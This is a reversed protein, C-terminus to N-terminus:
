QQKPTTKSKSKKFLEKMKNYNRVYIVGVGTKIIEGEIPNEYQNQRFGKLKYRGDDTLKYDISINGAVDSANNQKSKEGELEVNGGVRITVKDDFLQKSVGVQLQTRGEEQGTSYDEFSNVGLDLDIFKVYKESLSSLQQTLVKSASSRSASSLGGGGSSELPNDSIFRRLTLLAFVQKNLQTEDGRLEELKTNVSGNIAGKDKPALQIDFAIEPTSLFGSMKLYVYFTLLSRYKNRELDNVSGLDNEILDLPSTKITYIAKIDVYADLIDGSWSVSSGSQIKFDRKVIDSISLHYGGDSINYKGTLATKGVKDLAFNLKGGGVIFLSDGSQQDVLMKLMVTKDITISADLDIGKMEIIDKLTDNTRTMIGKDYRLSDVFEVIGKNELKGVTKEPKVYTIVSGNNVKAKVKLYPSKTTGKIAIDCDLFVTGFYLPNDQVTTNLALFNDTRLRLDLDINKIDKIKASGSVVAKNNLSDLITFDPFEITNANIKIKSDPIRIYSDIFLPNLASEVFRLDGDFNPLSIPGTIKLKGNVNGTMRKVQDFTFPEVTAMNLNRIDLLMNLAQNRDAVNYSGKLAIDNGNGNVNIDLAYLKPSQKNNAKLKITGIPVSQFVFDSIMLDSSFANVNNQKELLVVGNVEGKVLGKKNEFLQSITSLNFNKFNLELPSPAIKNRSKISISQQANSLIFNNALLGQKTLQLYNTPEVNWKQANLIFDQNIKLEFIENVKKFVGGIALIKVSDDKATSLQFNIANDKVNGNLSTNEFKITPNSVEAINLAYNFAQDDSNIKIKLSDVTTGSYKIVPISLEAILTQTESNFNGNVSSPSLKSLNPILNNEILTADKLYVSFDFKQPEYKKIGSIHKEFNFYRNVHQTLLGPLEKVNIKGTITADVIESTLTISAIENNVKSVLIVSDVPFKKGEKIVLANKISAEGIFYKGQQKIDCEIYASVRTDVEAFNLAKLDAGKLDFKFDYKPNISDMNVIGDFNFSLNEDNISANGSFSKKVIKGDLKLDKYEYNNIKAKQVILNLSTNINNTNIGSGDFKLDLTIPGLLDSKNLLKGADFNNLKVSGNYPQERNGATPNMNVDALVNGISTNIQLSTNFNKIYGKLNGKIAFTEPITLTSPILNKSIISFLENRTSNIDVVSFDIFMNKPNMVQHISGKVKVQTSKLTSLEFQNLTLNNLIGKIDTNLSVITNENINLAKIDLLNPAFYLVDSMAVTSNKLHASVYLNGINEAINKISKYNISLRDKIQSNKTELNLDYVSVNTTDYVIAAQMTKLYLGSQETFSLNQLQLSSYKASGVIDNAQLSFNQAYIHNYDLGSKKREVQNNDFCFTNNNLNINKLKVVWYPSTSNIPESNKIKAVSDNTNKVKNMVFSATTNLLSITELNIKGNEIDIDGPEVLLEGLALNANQFNIINTYIAHITELKIENVSIKYDFPQSAKKPKVPIHSKGQSVIVRSNNFLVSKIAITQQVLDFTKFSTEFNGLNVNANIGGHLDYFTFYVKHLEVKKLSFQWGAKATDKVVSTTQAKPKVFANIIFNFNFISDTKKRSIHATADELTVNNIEIKKSFLAILDVDVKLNDFYLLTDSKEDEVYLKQLEISKPFALTIKKLEVKTKIKDSLFHTAKGTVYTQIKPIQLLLFILLM